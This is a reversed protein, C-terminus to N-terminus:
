ELYGRERLTVLTPSGTWAVSFVNSIIKALTVNGNDIGAVQSNVYDQKPGAYTELPHILLYNASSPHLIILKIFVDTKGTLGSTIELDVWAFGGGSVTQSAITITDGVIWGVPVNATLILTNTGTICNSILANTGRTTNYLRMKALQSTSTPVMAGEQGSTINYTLNAGGPLTAITGVFASAGGPNDCRFIDNNNTEASPKSSLSTYAHIHGLVSYLTDFYTKLNTWVGNRRGYYVSDNPAEEVGGTSPPDPRSFGHFRKNM